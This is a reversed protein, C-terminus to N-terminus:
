NLDLYNCTAAALANFLVTRSDEATYLSIGQPLHM